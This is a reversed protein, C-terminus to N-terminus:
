PASHIPALPPAAASVPPQRSVENLAAALCENAHFLWWIADRVDGGAFAILREVVADDRSPTGLEHLKSM